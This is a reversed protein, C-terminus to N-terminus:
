HAAGRGISLVILGQGCLYSAKGVGLLPTSGLDDATRRYWLPGIHLLDGEWGNFTLDQLEITDHMRGRESVYKTLSPLDRGVFQANSNVIQLPVSVWQFTPAIAKRVLATDGTSVAQFWTKLAAVAEATGCRASVPASARQATAATACLSLAAFVGVFPRLM